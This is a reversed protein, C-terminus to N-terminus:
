ANLRTGEPDLFLPETVVASVPSGEVALTVREGLRARGNALLALAISRGLNPSLYSSTVHGLMEMPPTEKMETVIHAGESLVTSGYETLLGVLQKRGARATDARALSRKGIFDGTKSVAWDMGLDGPTVSGDTDQGVAIYGKEARLIHLAETGIPCAGMSEGAAFLAQWLAVGASAPVNVEYSLEGTYSVRFIRAPLGAVRGERVSMHPFAGGDLDIDETVGTLLARANPGSVAITAWQTTVSTLFVPLDPWECQLWDEMWCMVRAANGTTTTMLYRNEGLRATVGDDFVMGDEGLMLGYRCRGAALKDWRNTYILNLLARAGEGNIEIKGLTSADLLAVGERAALAERQVAAHKDEGARPYYFARKWQGVNEFVAGAKEHWDHIPTHRVPDALTGIDRGALAGYTVPTYPPRFTTTGVAAIDNGRIGALLALANVNGTKGQDPGMGATTYRKLHEVSVYGEAAAGEIDRATVDTHFDVFAKGTSGPTPAWAPDIPTRDHESVVPVNPAKSAFGARGAAAVGAEIGDHLCDGLGFSANAAGACRVEQVASSPVFCAEAEDFKLRGGSQSFLHLTPSWGGSMALLDCDIDRGEGGGVPEVRVSRVRREGSASVIRHGALLPADFKELAAAKTEGPLCTDVIAAIKVGAAALDHAVGYASDNNTAVVVRAGVRVAYRNVYNQAAGALMIGPRDNNEFVLPREIAGTALVVQKARVKWLRQRPAAVGRQELPLHDTVRELLFVYNHDYYGFATTRQLLRVEPLAALEALTQAAWDTAASGGIVQRTVLLSGGAEVQEDVIMVRAGARGAALAASLGAPGAGVILLDCHTHVKEYRDPDAQRPARGLGAARRIVWEYFRWFGPPGMFTKYYFGTPLFPSLRDLGSMADWRLSPWRNVSRAELGDFLEVQTAAAVPDRRGGRGLQVFANPEDAGSGFIGRPRHFKFSRGVLSVGNALLASALTDGMHGQYTQGDFAFRLSKTRDIRGGSHLRFPQTM